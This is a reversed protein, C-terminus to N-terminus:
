RMLKVAVTRRPQDQVAEYVAGMGGTAILRKLTYHGVRVSHTAFNTATDDDLETPAHAHAKLDPSEPPTGSGFAPGAQAPHAPRATETNEQNPAPVDRAM